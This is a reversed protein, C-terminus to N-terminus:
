NLFKVLDQDIEVCDLKSKSHILPETLAGQGPGIELLHDNPSPAIAAIIQDIVKKDHLFNQGFRKRPIHAYGNKLKIPNLPKL